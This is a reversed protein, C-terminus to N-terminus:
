FCEFSNHVLKLLPSVSCFDFSWILILLFILEFTVVIAEETMILIYIYIYIYINNKIKKISTILIDNFLAFPAVWTGLTYLLYV